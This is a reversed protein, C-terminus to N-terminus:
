EGLSVRTGAERDARHVGVTRLGLQADLGHREGQMGFVIQQVEGRQEPQLGGGVRVLSM